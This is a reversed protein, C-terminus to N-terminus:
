DGRISISQDTKLTQTDSFGAVVKGELAAFCNTVRRRIDQGAQERFCGDLVDIICWPWQAPHAVVGARVMNLDIYVM